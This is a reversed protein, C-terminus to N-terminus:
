CAQKKFPMLAVALVSLRSNPRTGNLVNIPLTTHRNGQFIPQAVTAATASPVLSISAAGPGAPQVPNATTPSSDTAQLPPLLSKKVDDWAKCPEQHLFDSVDVVLGGQQGVMVNRGHVDHPFLGQQRAFDLAADIDKIVREPIPIGRHLCDYLTIGHLRKLVLFNEGTYLCQSFAPHLGLRRYVEVEEKLGPRGPAYVKVVQDPVEPHCLVAAYNGAGLLIWPAPVHHVVVPNFPELSEIHLSPLLSDCVRAVMSTHATNFSNHTSSM